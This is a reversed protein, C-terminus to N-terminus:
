RAFPAIGCSYPCKVVSVSGVISHRDVGGVRALRFVLDAWATEQVGSSRKRDNPQDDSATRVLRTDREGLSVLVSGNRGAHGAVDTVPQVRRRAHEM